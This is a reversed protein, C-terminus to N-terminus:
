VKSQPDLARPNLSPLIDTRQKKLRSDKLLLLLRDAVFCWHNEQPIACGAWVTAAEQEQPAGKRGWDELPLAAYSSRTPISLLYTLWAAKPCDGASSRSDTLSNTLLAPRNQSASVGPTLGGFKSKHLTQPPQSPDLQFHIKAARKCSSSTLGCFKIRYGAPLYGVIDLIPLWCDMIDLM